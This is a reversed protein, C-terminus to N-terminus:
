KREALRALSDALEGLSGRLVGAELRSGFLNAQEIEPSRTVAGAVPIGRAALDHHLYAETRGDVKNLVATFPKKAQSALIPLTGAVVDLFPAYPRELYVRVEHDGAAEAKKIVSSDVWQYPHEKIYSVTFVM